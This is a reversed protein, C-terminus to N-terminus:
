YISTNNQNHYKDSKIQQYALLGYKCVNCFNDIFLKNKHKVLKYVKIFINEM